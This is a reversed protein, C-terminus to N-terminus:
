ILDRPFSFSHSQGSTNDVLPLRILDLEDANSIDLVLKDCINLEDATM